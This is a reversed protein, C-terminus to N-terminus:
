NERERKVDNYQVLEAVVATAYCGTGLAFDLRLSGDDCFQWYFDDLLARAPRYALDLGMRELFSGIEAGDA